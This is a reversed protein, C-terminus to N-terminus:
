MLSAALWPEETHCYLIENTDIPEYWKDATSSCSRRSAAFHLIELVISVVFEFGLPLRRVM